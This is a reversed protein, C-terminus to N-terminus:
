TSIVFLFIFIDRMKRLYRPDLYFKHDVSWTMKFDFQLCHATFSRSFYVFLSPETKWVMSIELAIPQSKLHM